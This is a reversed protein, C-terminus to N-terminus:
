ITAAILAQRLLSLAEDVEADTVNLPPLLRIVEPGAPPCLFGLELLKSVLTLAPTKGEAVTIRTPDLALGLLLGM